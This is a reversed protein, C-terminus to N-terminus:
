DMWLKVSGTQAETRKGTWGLKHDTVEIGTEIVEMMGKADRVQFEPGFDNGTGKMNEAILDPINRVHLITILFM